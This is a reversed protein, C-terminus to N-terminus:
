SNSTRSMGTVTATSELPVLTWSVPGASHFLRMAPMGIRCYVDSLRHRLFGHLSRFQQSEVASNLAIGGDIRPHFIMSTFQAGDRLLPELYHATAALFNALEQMIATRNGTQSFRREAVHIYESRM